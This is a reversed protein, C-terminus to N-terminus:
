RTELALLVATAATGDLAHATSFRLVRWHLEAARNYKELDALYGRPRTHRGGSWIGGEIEVAILQPPLAVDFRWRREPDFRFEREFAVGHATLQACVAEEGPSPERPRRAARSPKAIEVLQHTLHPHRAAYAALERRTLKM